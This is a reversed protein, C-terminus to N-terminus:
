FTGKGIARWLKEASANGDVLTRLLNIIRSVSDGLNRIDRLGSYVHFQTVNLCDFDRIFHDLNGLTISGIALQM